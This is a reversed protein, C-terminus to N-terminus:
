NQNGLVVTRLTLINRLANNVLLPHKLTLLRQVFLPFGEFLTRREAYRPGSPPLSSTKEPKRFYVPTKGLFFNHKHM